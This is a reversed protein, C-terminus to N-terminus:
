FATGPRLIKHVAACVSIPLSPRGRETAESRHRLCRAVSLRPGGGEGPAAQEGCARALLHLVLQLVVPVAPLVQEVDDPLQLDAVVAKGRGEM